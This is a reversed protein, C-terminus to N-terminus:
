AVQRMIRALHQHGESDLGAMLREREAAPKNQSLKVTDRFVDIKMEFGVIGKLLAALAKPEMKDMTWATGHQVRAEHHRSLNDLLGPLESDAIRRVTGEMEFALYNWTPVQNAAQYWRASMYADPGHAVALVTAGDIHPALANSRALHFRLTHGATLEFPTHAVRPGEPTTLFVAAFGIDRIMADRFAPDDHRFASTPHM